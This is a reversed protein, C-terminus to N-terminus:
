FYFTLSYLNERESYQVYIVFQKLPDHRNPNNNRIILLQHTTRKYRGDTGQLSSRPVGELGEEEGQRVRRLATRRGPHRVQLHLRHRALDRKPVVGPRLARSEARFEDGVDDCIQFSCVFRFLYFLNMSARVYSRLHIYGSNVLM